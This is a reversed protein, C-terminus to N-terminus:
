PSGSADLAIAIVREPNEHGHDVVHEQVTPESDTTTQIPPIAAVPTSDTDSQSIM